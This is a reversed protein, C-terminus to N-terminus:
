PRRNARRDREEPRDQTVQKKAPPEEPEPHRNRHFAFGVCGLVIFLAGAVIMWHPYEMAALMRRYGKTQGWSYVVATM